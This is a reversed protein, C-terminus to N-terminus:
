TWGHQWLHCSKIKLTQTINRYIYIYVCWMKKIWESILLCKPQEWVQNNYILSCPVYPHMYKKRILAKAKKPYIGLLPIAPDQPLGIKLKKLLRWVTKWLPQVLKSKWWCHIFNRKRWKKKGVSTIQQRKKITAMKVFTLHYWMTTQIQMGRIILSSSCRKMHRNAM